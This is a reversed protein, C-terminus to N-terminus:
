RRADQAETRPSDDETVGKGVDDARRDHERHGIEDQVDQQDRPEGEESKPHLRRFRIPSGHDGLAAVEDEIGAPDARQWAQHHHQRAGAEAQDAVAEGAAEPVAALAQHLAISVAATLLTLRGAMASSMRIRRPKVVSNWPRPACVRALSSMLRAILRPAVRPMTPSDPLPFDTRHRLM